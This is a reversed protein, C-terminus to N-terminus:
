GEPVPTADRLTADSRQLQREVLLLGIITKADRIEGSEVMAMADGLPLHVVESHAEEPGHTERDVVTLETALFLHLVSNTMGASPYFAHMPELRGAALGVEEVLERAATVVTPEDPVDRMGAPIELVLEDFAARYQRVLVVSPNGEADFLLPVAAVAGPSRVVDREFTEGDPSEFRAVAVHWIHGQHVLRDDVHRFGSV